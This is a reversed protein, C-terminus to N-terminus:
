VEKWVDPDGNLLLPLEEPPRLSTIAIAVREKAKPDCAAIDNHSFLRGSPAVLDGTKHPREATDGCAAGALLMGLVSGVGIIRKAPQLSREFALSAGHITHKM